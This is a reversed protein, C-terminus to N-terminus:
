TGCNVKSYNDQSFHFRGSKATHQLSSTFETINMNAALCLRYVETNNKKIKKIHAILSEDSVAGRITYAKCTENKSPFHDWFIKVLDAESRKWTPNKAFFSALLEVPKKM